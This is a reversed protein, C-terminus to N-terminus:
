VGFGLGEFGWDEGLIRTLDSLGNAVLRVPDPDPVTDHFGGPWRLRATRWGRAAAPVLDHRPRDGIMAIDRGSLGSAREIAEFGAPNPKWFERGGLADTFVVVEFREALGLARWKAEQVALPGDSLLGLRVGLARLRDLLDPIGPFPRINPSHARFATVLGKILMPEVPIGLRSLGRDFIQHVGEAELIELFVQDAGVSRGLFADLWAGAARVGGRVFEVEPYLTDDMDFVIMRPTDQM